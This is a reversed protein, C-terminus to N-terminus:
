ARHSIEFYKFAFCWLAIGFGWMWVASGFLVILHQKMTYKLGPNAFFYIATSRGINGLSGLILLSCLLAVLKQQQWTGKNRRTKVAVVAFLVINVLGLAGNEICYALSLNSYKEPM